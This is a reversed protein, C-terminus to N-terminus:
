AANTTTGTATPPYIRVTRGKREVDLAGKDIWNRVTRETVQYYDATQKTTWLRPSQTNGNM